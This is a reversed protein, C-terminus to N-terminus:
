KTPAPAAAPAPMKKDMPSLFAKSIDSVHLTVSKTVGHMTLDGTVDFKGEGLSKVSKSKFTITPYKATDFFDATKLHGDRKENGTDISSADITVEVKSNEPKKDDIDATGSFKRFNGNVKSVMMHKVSFGVQSHVPDIEYGGAWALTPAALVLAASLFARKM